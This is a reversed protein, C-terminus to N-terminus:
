RTAIVDAMGYRGASKGQLWRAARLAGRAFTDRSTAVHALEIREGDGAFYVRHEGVVDGLRLAHVGVEGQRRPTKGERGHVLDKALDRGTAACLSKALTIATGSPADKKGKHHLEVLEVDYGPGLARATEAVLKVLLAVGVSTNSAALVPVRSSASDLAAEHPAELGTACAVLPIGLDRCEHARAATGEPTSFDIVVDAGKALKDARGLAQALVVAGESAEIAAAVAKGMRGRAGSLAVKLATV